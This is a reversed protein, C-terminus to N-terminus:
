DKQSQMRAEINEVFQQSTNEHPFPENPLPLRLAACIPEWGDEPQWEFLREAPVTERVHANHAEYCEIMREKDPNNIDTIGMGLEFIAYAMSRWPTADSNQTAPVITRMVSNYWTEADRRTSLLVPADPFADAQSEWFLSSPWDVAAAYDALFTAWDPLEGRAAAEWTPNDSTRELLEHMHYCPSNLLKELALKLSTTGTRPYGAGILQMAM